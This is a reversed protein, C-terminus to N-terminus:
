NDRYLFYGGSEHEEGDWGALFHGRGDAAIADEAFRKFGETGGIIAYVLENASECLEENMRRVATIVADREHDPITTCHDVIFDANFAWLHNRVDETAAKDAEEDTLILWEEHNSFTFRKNEDVDTCDLEDVEVGLYAALAALRAKKENEGM